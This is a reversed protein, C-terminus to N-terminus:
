SLLTLVDDQKIRPKTNSQHRSNKISRGRALLDDKFVHLAKKQSFIFVKNTAVPSFAGRVFSVLGDEPLLPGRGDFFSARQKVSCFRASSLLVTYFRAHETFPGTGPKKPSGGRSVSAL